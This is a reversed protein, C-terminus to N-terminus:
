KTPSPVVLSAAKCAAALLAALVANLELKRGNEKAGFISVVVKGTEDPLANVLLTPPLQVFGRLASLVDFGAFSSTRLDLVLVDPWSSRGDVAWALSELAQASDSVEMVDFGLVRLEAKLRRGADEDDNAVLVSPRKTRQCSRTTGRTSRDPLGTVRECAEM